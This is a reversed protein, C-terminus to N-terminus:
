SGGQLAAWLQGLAILGLLITLGIIWKTLVVLTDTQTSTDETLAVLKKTQEAQGKSAERMSHDFERIAGILDRQVIAARKQLELIAATQHNSGTGKQVLAIMEDESMDKLSM